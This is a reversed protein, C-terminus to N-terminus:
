LRRRQSYTDEERTSPLPLRRSFPKCSPTSVVGGARHSALLKVERRVPFGFVATRTQTQSGSTYGPAPHQARQKGNKSAPFGLAPRRSDSAEFSIRHGSGFSRVIRHGGLAPRRMPLLRHCPGGRALPALFVLQAKLQRDGRVRWRGLGDLAAPALRARAASLPGIRLAM